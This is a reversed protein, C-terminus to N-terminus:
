TERWYGIDNIPVASIEEITMTSNHREISRNTDGIPPNEYQWSPDPYLIAFKGISAANLEIERTRARALAYGIESRLQNRAGGHKVAL